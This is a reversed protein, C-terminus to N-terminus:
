KTNKSINDLPVMKFGRGQNQCKDEPGHHFGTEALREDHGGCATDGNEEATGNRPCKQDNGNQDKKKRQDPLAQFRVGWSPGDGPYAAQPSFGRESRTREGAIPFSHFFGGRGRLQSFIRKPSKGTM